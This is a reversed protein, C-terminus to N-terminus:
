INFSLFIFVLIYLHKLSDREASNKKIDSDIVGLSNSLRGLDNQLKNLEINNDELSSKINELEDERKVSPLYEDNIKSNLLLPIYVVSQLM